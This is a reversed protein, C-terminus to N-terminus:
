FAVLVIFIGVGAGILAGPANGILGGVAMTGIVIMEPSKQNPDMHAPRPGRGAFYETEAAMADLIHHDAAAGSTFQLGSPGLQMPTDVLAGLALAGIVGLINRFSSVRTAGIREFNAAARSAAQQEARLEILTERAAELRQQAQVLADDLELGRAYVRQHQELTLDTNAPNMNLEPPGGTTDFSFGVTGRADHITGRAGGSSTQRDIAKAIDDIESGAERLVNQSQEVVAGHRNTAEINGNRAAKSYPGINEEYASAASTVRRSVGSLRFITQEATQLEARAQEEVQQVLAGFEEETMLGSPDSFRVPNSKSYQYVNLGAASGLPDCSMWRGLWPAYYRAACYYLGTEADRERGIYRYRKAGASAGRRSRYSTGGFPYYEEYDVVAGTEDLELLSTRQANTVHYRQRNAPNPVVVGNDVTTTEVEAVRAAGNLVHLTERASRLQGGAYQRHVEWAGLYLREDSVTGAQTEIVTRVRLGAGDYAYYAAGGGGLDVRAMRNAGDWAIDRLHPMSTINGNADYGHAGSFQGDADGPLSVALLRNSSAAYQHRRVWAGGAAAAAAHATEIPNGNEDYAYTETYARVAQADNAHPLSAAPVDQEDRRGAASGGHERGAARVLRYLADYDYETTPSVVANDFFLRQQSADTVRTVNGAPDYVYTLDQLRDAGRATRQNSLRLTRPDYRLETVAGNGYEVREPQGSANYAATRVFPLARSTNSDGRLAVTVSRGRGAEDYEIRTVSRDPTGATVIRNLADYSTTTTFSADLLAPAAATAIATASTLGALADWRASTRHDRVFQRTSSLGNGKFDYADTTVVGASDYVRYVRGRHNRAAPDALADGYVTKSALYRTGSAETLWVGTPRQLADYQREVHWGRADWGHAPSNAANPFTLTRGADVSDISLKRGLLDVGHTFAVVGKADTITLDNGQIDYAVRTSYRGAAGNDAVSLFAQGLSDFHRVAPTDAHRAAKDAADREEAGLGGDKRRTYWAPLYDAAPIAQFFPGVDPDTQPAEQTLTDNVDWTTELWADFVVKDYVGDPHLTAVVRDLPDYFLTSGVGRISEDEFDHAATFFPEHKRVPKGKNNFITWGSALWQGTVRTKTQVARAFGDFYVFGCLRDSGTGAQPGIAHQTRSITCAVNPAGTRAFRWLDYIARTSAQGLTDGAAAPRALADRAVAADLDPEFGDLSDGLPEGTKGMVATGVVAGLTDFAVASRNGNADTLRFPQLLRYDNEVRVDNGVADVAAALLLGYRDHTLRTIGGFPDRVRRPRHFLAPDFAQQPSRAWWYGAADAERVYGAARITDGTVRGAFTADIFADSFAAQYTEYSLGLPEIAGLPLRHSLVDPPDLADAGADQRYYMRKWELPRRASTAAFAAANLPAPTASWSWPVGTVEDSRTEYPRGIYYTATETSNIFTTRDYRIKLEGQEPYAPARRPYAIAVADTVNAFADVALVLKHGIRPDDPRREYYYTLTERPTRVYVAFPRSARAQLRTVTYRSETVMYPHPQRATGDLAFVESRLVAGELTRYAERPTDDVSLDHDALRFALRDGDYWQARVHTMFPQAGDVAGTHYWTKTLVPPVHRGREANTFRDGAGHLGPEAFREFTETDHRDVQAFGRFERDRGDYLGDHYEYRTVLKTRSVHDLVEVTRLVQVPFPLPTPWPRSRQVDALYDRTSTSYEVRTTVGMNNRMTRLVYPKQGGTLDLFAYNADAVSGADFTWLLCATGNGLVDAFRVDGADTMEPTGRVIHEASWGNGSQNFWFRVRGSEVYVLDACGDGDIDTLFARRPDIEPAVAPSARMTIRPGFRGYGLNPWFDVRGSHLLVIDQLGDGTMDALRVRGSPDAFSVDPFRDLDRLREIAEPPGFGDDGLCPYFLFHHDGTRLADGKGDGSLDVIRVNADDPAFTPAAQYPHFAQWGGNGAAEYFGWLPGDHVLLDARGNGSMDGFGVGRQALTIGAPQRELPRRRDLRGDGLNRWVSYGVPTTELVDALGTGFLDVLAYGPDRLSRPPLDGGAATMSRYRQDGPRFETYEFEVPPTSKILYVRSTAGIRGWAKEESEYTGPADAKRYGRVTASALLSTLTDENSRYRLDTSKVLTVARDASEQTHFMLLRKCRRQTRVEFGPRFTSFPDPRFEWPKTERHLDPTVVDHGDRDVDGHEGYDFVVLFFADADSAPATLLREVAGPVFPTFPVLNGYRIRKPYVRHLGHNRQFIENPAAAGDEHKYEYRVYEGKPDCTLEVHWESVQSALRPHSLTAQPTRGFYSTVNDKTTLKWFVDSSGPVSAGRARAWREIRAFLGEVRPRYTTVRFDGEDRPARDAHEILDEAGSLVYTDNDTYRPLGKETKRAIYPISMRWGLGFPGNGHGSSYELTLRLDFGGRGPSVAIPVGFTATGNFPNAQFTEGIGRIAGGGKPLSLVDGAAQGTRGGAADQSSSETAADVRTVGLVGAALTGSAKASLELFDRRSLDTV